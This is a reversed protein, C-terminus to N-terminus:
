FVGYETVNTPRPWDVIVEIRKPNVAAGQDLLAHGLFTVSRLWFECKSFKIYLKEKRLIGLVERLHETHGEETSSYILIDNIFVM